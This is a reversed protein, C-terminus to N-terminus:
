YFKIKLQNKKEERKVIYYNKSYHKGTKVGNSIEMYENVSIENM